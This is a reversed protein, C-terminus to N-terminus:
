RIAVSASNSTREYRRLPQRLNTSMSDDDDYCSSNGCCGRPGPTAPTALINSDALVGGSARGTTAVVCVTELLTAGHKCSPLSIMLAPAPNALCCFHQQVARATMTASRTPTRRQRERSSCLPRGTMAAACALARCMLTSGDDARESAASIITLM